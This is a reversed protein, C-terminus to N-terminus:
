PINFPNKLDRIVELMDSPITILSKEVQKFIVQKNVVIYVDPAIPNVYNIVVSFADKKYTPQIDINIRSLFTLQMYDAEVKHLNIDIGLLVLLRLVYDEVMEVTVQGKEGSISSTIM